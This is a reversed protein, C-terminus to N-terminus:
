YESLYNQYIDLCTPKLTCHLSLLKFQKHTQQNKVSMSENNM